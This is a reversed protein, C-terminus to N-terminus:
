NVGVAIGLAMLSNWLKIFLDSDPGSAGWQKLLDVSPDVLAQWQQISSDAVLLVGENELAFIRYVDKGVDARMRGEADLFRTAGRWASIKADRVKDCDVPKADKAGKGGKASKSGAGEKADPGCPELPKLADALRVQLDEKGDETLGVKMYAKYAEKYEDLQDALTSALSRRLTLVAERREVERNAADLRAQALGKSLLLPTLKPREADALAKRTKEQLDPFLALAVAFRNSGAKSGKGAVVADYTTLFDNISELREESFLASAFANEKGPDGGVKGDPNASAPLKKVLERLRELAGDIKKKAASPDGEMEKLGDAYTKQEKKLDVLLQAADAKAQEIDQEDKRLAAVTRGLEGAPVVTKLLADIAADADRRETCAKVFAFVTGDLEQKAEPTTSKDKVGRYAALKTPDLATVCPPAPMGLVGMRAALYDRMVDAKVAKKSSTEYAEATEVQAAPNAPGGLVRTMGGAVKARFESVTWDAAMQQALTSRRKVWIREEMSLQEALSKALNQRPTEIQAKLDVKSWAQAAAQGQKDREPSYIWRTTGCGSLLLSAAALSFTTWRVAFDKATRREGRKPRAGTRGLELGTFQSAHMQRRM